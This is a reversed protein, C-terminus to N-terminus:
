PKRAWADLNMGAIWASKRHALDSQLREGLTDIDIEEATAVGHALLAPMLGRIGAVSAALYASLHQVGGAAAHARMQPEPLGADQFVQFLELGMSLCGGGLVTGKDAWELVQRLLRSEPAVHTGISHYEQFAVVAGSRLNGALNRLADAPKALHMLVYRGVLADFTGGLALKDQLDGTVFRINTAGAEQARKQAAEVRAPSIDVGVVSGSPGVLTAAVLAVEGTGCGADLVHMGAELGADALFRQLPLAMAQALMQQRQTEQESHGFAYGGKDADAEM